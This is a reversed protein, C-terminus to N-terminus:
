DAALLTAAALAPAVEPAAWAPSIEAPLLCPSRVTGGSSPLGVKPGPQSSIVAGANAGSGAAAPRPSAQAPTWRRASALAKAAWLRLWLKGLRRWRPRRRFSTTPWCTGRPTGAGGRTARAAAPRLSRLRRPYSASAHWPASSALTRTGTNGSVADLAASRGCKIGAVAGMGNRTEARSQGHASCFAPPPAVVNAALSDPQTREPPQCSGVAAPARSRYAGFIKGMLSSM